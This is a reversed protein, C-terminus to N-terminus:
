ALRDGTRTVLVLSITLPLLWLPLWHRIRRATNRFKEGVGERRPYLEPPLPNLQDSTSRIMMIWWEFIIFLMFVDVLSKAYNAVFM